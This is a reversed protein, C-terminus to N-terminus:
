VGMVKQVVKFDFLVKIKQNNGTKLISNIYQLSIRLKVKNELEFPDDMTIVSLNEAIPILERYYEVNRDLGFSLEKNIREIRKKFDFEPYKYVM